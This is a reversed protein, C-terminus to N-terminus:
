EYIFNNISKTVLSKILSIRYETSANIDNNIDYKNFNIDDLNMKRLEDFTKNELEEIM